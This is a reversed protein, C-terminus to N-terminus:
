VGAHTLVADIESQVARLDQKWVTRARYSEGPEASDIPEQAQLDARRQVLAAHHTALYVEREATRLAAQAADLQRPLAELRQTAERWRRGADNLTAEAQAVSPDASPLWGRRVAHQVTLERGASNLLVTRAEAVATTALPVADQLAQLRQQAQAVQAAAVAVLDADDDSEEGEGPPLPEGTLAKLHASIDRFSGFGLRQRVANPGPEIGEAKLAAVAQEVQEREM